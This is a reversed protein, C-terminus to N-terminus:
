ALTVNKTNLDYSVVKIGPVDTSEGLRWGNIPYVNGASDTLVNFGDRNVFFLELPSPIEPQTMIISTNVVEPTTITIPQNEVVPQFVPEPITPSVIPVIVEPQPDPLLFTEISRLGSQIVYVENKIYVTSHLATATPLKTDIETWNTGDFTEISDLVVSNAITGGTVYIKNNYIFSTHFWRPNALSGAYSWTQTTIDYSEVDSVGQGDQNYGGIVYLKNGIASMTHRVRINSSLGPVDFAEGTKLSFGRLQRLNALALYVKDDFAVSAFNGVTFPMCFPLEKWSIGDYCEISNTVNSGPLAGGYIYIKNEYLCLGFGYRPVNLRGAIEWTSTKFNFREVEAVLDNDITIGGIVYLNGDPGIISKHKHRTYSMLPLNM